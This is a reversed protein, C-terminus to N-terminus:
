PQVPEAVPVYFTTVRANDKQLDRSIRGKSNPTGLLTWLMLLPGEMGHCRTAREEDPESQGSCNLRGEYRVRVM